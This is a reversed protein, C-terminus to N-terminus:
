CMRRNPKEAFIRKLRSFLYKYLVSFDEAEKALYDQRKDDLKSEFEGTEYAELLEQEEQDLKIKNMRSERINDPWKAVSFLRKLFLKTDDEIYPM